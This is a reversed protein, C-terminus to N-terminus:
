ISNLTGGGNNNNNSTTNFSAVYDIQEKSQVAGIIYERVWAIVESADKGFFRHKYVCVYVCVCVCVCVSM